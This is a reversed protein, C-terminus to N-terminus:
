IKSRGMRRNTKCSYKMVHEGFLVDCSDLNNWLAWMGTVKMHIEHINGLLESRSLKMCDIKFSQVIFIM